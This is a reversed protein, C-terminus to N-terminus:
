RTNVSNDGRRGSLQISVASEPEAALQYARSSFILFPMIADNDPFRAVIPQATGYAIAAFNAYGSRVTIAKAPSPAICIFPLSSNSVILLYQCDHLVGFMMM